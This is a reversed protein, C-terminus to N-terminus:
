RATGQEVVERNKNVVSGGFQLAREQLRVAGRRGAVVHGQRVIRRHRGPYFTKAQMLDDVPEASARFLRERLPFYRAQERAGFFPAPLDDRGSVRSM